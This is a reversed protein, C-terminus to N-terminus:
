LEKDPIHPPLLSGLSIAAWQEEFRFTGSCDLKKGGKLTKRPQYATNHGADYNNSSPGLRIPSGWEPTVQWGNKEDKTKQRVINQIITNITNSNIFNYQNGFVQWAGNM